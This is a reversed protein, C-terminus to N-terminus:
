RVKKVKVRTKQLREIESLPILWFRKGGTLSRTEQANIKGSNILDYVTRVSAQLRLAAERPTLMKEKEEEGM